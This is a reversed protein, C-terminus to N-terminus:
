FHVVIRKAPLCNSRRLSRFNIAYNLDTRKIAIIRTTGFSNLLFFFFFFFVFALLALFGFFSFFAFFFFTDFFVVKSCGILPKLKRRQYSAFLLPFLGRLSHPPSQVVFILLGLFSVSFVPLFHLLSSRFPFLLRLSVYIPATITIVSM